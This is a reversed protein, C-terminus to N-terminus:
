EKFSKGGGFWPGHSALIKFVHERIGLLGVCYNELILQLEVEEISVVGVPMNSHGAGCLEFCNGFYAGARFVTVPLSNTRGPVADVKKGLAPVGWRHMVDGSTVLVENKCGTAVFCPM